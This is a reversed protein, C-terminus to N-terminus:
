WAAVRRAVTRTKNYSVTARARGLLRLHEQLLTAMGLLSMAVDEFIKQNRRDDVMDQVGSLLIGRRREDQGREKAAIDM